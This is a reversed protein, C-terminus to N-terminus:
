TSSPRPRSRGQESLLLRDAQQGRVFGPGRGAGPPLVAVRLCGPRGARVGFRPPSDRGRLDRGTRIYSNAFQEAKATEGRDIFMKVLGAQAARNAPDFSIAQNYYCEAKIWNQSKHYLRALEYHVQPNEYKKDLEALLERRPETRLVVTPMAVSLLDRSPGEMVGGSACVLCHGFARAASHEKGGADTSRQRGTM